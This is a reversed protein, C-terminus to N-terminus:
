ILELLIPLERTGDDEAFHGKNAEVIVRAGLKEEFVKSSEELPVYPDNDSFIATFSNAHERVKELDLPADIWPRAIVWEDETLGMLDVFGAVLIIKDVKQNDELSELYRLITQCGMSHGILIDGEQVEGVVKALYPVWTEIKPHDKEPMSLAQTQYGKTELQKKAWPIWDNGDPSGSWGHVIFVRKM